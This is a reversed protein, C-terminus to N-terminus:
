KWRGKAGLSLRIASENEIQVVTVAFIEGVKETTTGRNTIYFNGNEDSVSLLVVPVDTFLSAPFSIDELKGYYHTSGWSYTPTVSTNLVGWCEALGSAWKRYTWIGNTGQEIIYDATREDLTAKIVISNNSDGQAHLNASGDKLVEFANIRGGESGAGIAFMVNTADETRNYKGFLVQADTTSQLNYGHVYCYNNKVLNQYGGVHSRNCGRITNSEGEIHARRSNEIRNGLGEVHATHANILTHSRGEVHIFHSADGDNNGSEDTLDIEHNSGEVHGQRPPYASGYRGIKHADGEVSNSQGYVYINMGKAHTDNGYVHVKKGRVSSYEGAVYSGWGAAHSCTGIAETNHGEAHSYKGIARTQFGEAHAHEGLIDDNEKGTQTKYGETHSYSGYAKTGYGEAHAGLGVVNNDYDNFIEGYIAKGNLITENKKEGVIITINGDARFITPYYATNVNAVPLYGCVGNADLAKVWITGDHSFYSAQNNVTFGDAKYNELYKEEQSEAAPVITGNHIGRRTEQDFSIDCYKVLVFRGPFIGDQEQTNIMATRNPFIKDILFPATPYRGVGQLLLNEM